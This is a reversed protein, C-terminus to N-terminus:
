RHDCLKYRLCSVIFIGLRYNIQDCVQVSNHEKRILTQGDAWNRDEIELAGGTDRAHQAVLGHAERRELLPADESAGLHLHGQRLPRVHEDAPLDAVEAESRQLLLAFPIPSAFLFSRSFRM